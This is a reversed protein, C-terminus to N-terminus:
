KQEKNSDDAVIDIVKLETGSIAALHYGGCIPCANGYRALAVEQACDLCWARGQPREIILEAENARSHKRVSLWAFRLSAIDVGALEGVAIRVSKVRSVSNAEATREVIDMIGEAISLEHM